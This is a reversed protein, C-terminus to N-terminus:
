YSDPTKEDSLGLGLRIAIEVPSYRHNERYLHFPEAPCLPPQAMFRPETGRHPQAAHLLLPHCLYVTGAAGTALVERRDGTRGELAAALHLVAHCGTMARRLGVRDRVDSRVFTAGRAQPPPEILDCSVIEQGAALLPAYFHSAIFGSGGTILIKM